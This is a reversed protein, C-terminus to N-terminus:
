PLSMVEITGRQQMTVFLRFPSDEQLALNTPYQGRLPLKHLLKGEPSLVAICGAGYRAIYLNGQRDTKMGDLGHDDFQHFLQKNTLNGEPTIDYVWVRRQVSENVYLRTEEPNLEIGNTTGMGSELLTFRGDLDLRWLQGSNNAWDPDTVYILGSRAVALDNPQNMRKDHHMQVITRSGVDVEIINHGTYDAIFMRGADNFRISNGTSGKPLTMFIDTKGRASIVGITGESQYNPVYLQRDPGFAPGEIGSTFSGEDLYDGTPLDVGKCASLVIVLGIAFYQPRKM